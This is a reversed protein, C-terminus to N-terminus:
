RSIAEPTAIGTRPRAVARADVEIAGAGFVSLLPPRLERGLVISVQATDATVTARGAFGQAALFRNAASRALAPDLQAIRGDSARYVALDLAGAGARAAGDATGQLDRRAAFLVGGDAVLATLVLLALLVVAVLAM